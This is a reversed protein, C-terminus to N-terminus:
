YKPKVYEGTNDFETNVKRSRWEWANIMRSIQGEDFNCVVALLVNNIYDSRKYYKHAKVWADAANIIEEDLRISTLKKPKM